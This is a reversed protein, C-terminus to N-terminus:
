LNCYCKYSFLCLLHYVLMTKYILLKTWIKNSSPINECDVTAASQFLAIFIIIIITIIVIITITPLQESAGHRQHHGFKTQLKVWNTVGAYM